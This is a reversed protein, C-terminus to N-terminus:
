TDKKGERLSPSLFLQEVFEILSARYSEERAMELIANRKSRTVENTKEAM